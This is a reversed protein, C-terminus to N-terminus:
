SWVEDSVEFEQARRRPKVNRDKKLQNVESALGQGNCDTPFFFSLSM